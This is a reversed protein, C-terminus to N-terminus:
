RQWQRKKSRIWIGINQFANIIPNSHYAAVVGIDEDINTDHRHVTISLSASKLKTGTIQPNDAKVIAAWQKLQEQNDRQMKLEKDYDVYSLM